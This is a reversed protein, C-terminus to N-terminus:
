ETLDETGRSPAKLHRNNVCSAVLPRAMDLAIEVPDFMQHFATEDIEVGGILGNDMEVTIRM